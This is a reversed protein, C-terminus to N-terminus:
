EHNIEKPFIIESKKINVGHQKLVRYLENKIGQSPIIKHKKLYQTFEDKTLSQNHLENLILSAYSKVSYFFHLENSELYIEDSILNLQEYSDFDSVRKKVVSRVTSKFLDFANISNTCIVIDYVSKKKSNFIPLSTIYNVGLSMKVRSHFLERLAEIKESYTKNLMLSNLESFSKGYTDKYYEFSSKRNLSKPNTLNRLTDNQIFHTFIIDYRKGAIMNSIQPFTIQARYPDYFLLIHYRLSDFSLENLYDMVDRNSLHVNVKCFDKKLNEILCEQCEIEQKGLDNLYLHFEKDPYKTSSEQLINFVRLSTGQVKSGDTSIYQGTSSMCDIFIVGDFKGSKESEFQLVKNVWAAVYTELIGIKEITGVHIKATRGTYCEGSKLKYLCEM